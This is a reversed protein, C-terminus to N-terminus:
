KDAGFSEGWERGAGFGDRDVKSFWCIQGKLMLLYNEYAYFKLFLIAIYSSTHISVKFM